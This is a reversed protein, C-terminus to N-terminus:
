PLCAHNRKRTDSSRRNDDLNGAPLQLDGSVAPMLCIKKVLKTLAAPQWAPDFGVSDAITTAADFQLKLYPNLLFM